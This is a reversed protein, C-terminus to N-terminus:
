MGNGSSLDLIEIKLAFKLFDGIALSTSTSVKALNVCPYEPASIVSIQWRAHLYAMRSLMSFSISRSRAMACFGSPAM